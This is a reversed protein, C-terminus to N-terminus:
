NDIKYQEVINKFDNYFKDLEEYSNDNSITIRVSQNAQQDTLGLTILSPSPEKNGSVCATNASIMYGMLDCIAVIQQNDIVIGEILININNPLRKERDGNLSVGDIELLKDLLYDRKKKVENYNDYNLLEVAKAFAAITYIDDTGNWLNSGSIIPSLEVGEKVYLVSCNKLGHIKYSSLTCMDIGLDEVNVNFYPWYATLDSHFINNHDNKHLVKAIEKIPQLTGIIPSAGCVSVLCNKYHNFQEPDFIGSKNNCKEVHKYKYKNNIEIDLISPHELDSCVFNYYDNNKNMFGNIALSNSCSASPTFVIEEPKCNIKNAITIRSQEIIRRCDLASEYASNPNYWYDGQLLDIVTQIVEPYPKTTAM